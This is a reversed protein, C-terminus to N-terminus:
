LDDDEEHTHDFMDEMEIQEWGSQAAGSGLTRAYSRGFSPHRSNVSVGAIRARFNDGLCSSVALWAIFFVLPIFFVLVLLILVDM